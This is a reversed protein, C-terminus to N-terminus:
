SVIEEKREVIGYLLISLSRMCTQEYKELDIKSDLVMQYRVNIFDLYLRLTEVTAEVSIDDRLHINQLLEEIVVINLYDFDKRLEKIRETMHQPPAIAIDCFLKHHYINQSFYKYRLNFYEELASPKTKDINKFSTKLFATLGNFLERVCELYLEDKDKFYHYLIGKSIEGSACINNVSSLGYGKEGFEKFASELIRKKSLYNKEDRKM